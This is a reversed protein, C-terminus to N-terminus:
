YTWLWCKISVTPVKAFHFRIPKVRNIHYAHPMIFIYVVIDIRFFRVIRRVQPSNGNSSCSEFLIKRDTKCVPVLFICFYILILKLFFYCRSESYNTHVAGINTVLLLFHVFMKGDKNWVTPPRVGVTKVQFRVLHVFLRVVM